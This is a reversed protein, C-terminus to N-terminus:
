TTTPVGHPPALGGLNQGVSDASDYAHALGEQFQTTVGSPAPPAPAVLVVGRLGSHRRSAEGVADRSYFDGDEYQGTAVVPDFRRLHQALVQERQNGGRSECLQM